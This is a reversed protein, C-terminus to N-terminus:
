PTAVLSLVPDTILDDMRLIYETKPIHKFPILGSDSKNCMISDEPNVSTLDFSVENSNFVHCENTDDITYIYTGVSHVTLIRFVKLKVSAEM